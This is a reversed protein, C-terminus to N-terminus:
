AQASLTLQIILRRKPPATPAPEPDSPVSYLHLPPIPNASM